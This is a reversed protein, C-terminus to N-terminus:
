LGPRVSGLAPTMRGMGPWWASPRLAGLPTLSLNPSQGGGGSANGIGAKQEHIIESTENREVM